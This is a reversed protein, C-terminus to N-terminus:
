YTGYAFYRQNHGQPSHCIAVILDTLHQGTSKKLCHGTLNFFIPYRSHSVTFAGWCYAPLRFIFFLHIAWRSRKPELTPARHPKAAVWVPLLSSAIALIM